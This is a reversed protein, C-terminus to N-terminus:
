QNPNLWDSGVAIGTAHAWSASGGQPDLHKYWDLRGDFRVGYIIGQGGSGLSAFRWGEGIAHGCCGSTWSGNGGLPDTYHYWKLQGSRTVAYLTGSATFISAGSFVDVFDNWGTGIVKGCCGGAWSGNGGVPDTYRYWKLTGDYTIGYFVGNGGSIIQKFQDWGTGILKGCCGSGWQGEGDYRYWRMDGSQTIGYFVNGDSLILRFQDWATGIQGEGHWSTTPQAWGLHDYMLLRGDALVRHLLSSGSMVVRTGCNRSTVQESNQRGDDTIQSPVGDFFAHMPVNKSGNWRQQELHLHAVYAGGGPPNGSNGSRAIQQGQRVHAGDTFQYSNPQLHLYLTRWGHGHDIAVQYGGSSSHGRRAIGAAAALVPTGSPMMIDIEYDGHGSYTSNVYTTGCRYPAQFQPRGSAPDLAEARAIPFLVALAALIPVPHLARRPRGRRGSISSPWRISARETTTM